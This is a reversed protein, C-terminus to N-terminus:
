KLKNMKQKTEYIDESHGKAAMEIEQMKKVLARYGKIFKELRLDTLDVQLKEVFLEELAIIGDEILDRKPLAMEKKSVAKVEDGCKGTMKDELAM